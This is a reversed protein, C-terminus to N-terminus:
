GGSRWQITVRFQAGCAEVRAPVDAPGPELSVGDVPIQALGIGTEAAAGGDDCRPWGAGALARQEPGPDGVEILVADDVGVDDLVVDDPLGDSIADVVAQYGHCRESVATPERWAFQGCENM